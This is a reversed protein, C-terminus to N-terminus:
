RYMRDFSEQLGDSIKDPHENVLQALQERSVWQIAAVEKTQLQFKTNGPLQLVYLKVFKNMKMNRYQVSTRYYDIERLHRGSIGLEEELERYAAVEYSEGSDVHGAASNDWCNPFIQKTSSRKQLLIRGNEDSIMVRVVRHYLGKRYAEDQTTAYLPRDDEDVIQIPASM